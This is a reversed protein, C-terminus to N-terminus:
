SKEPQPAHGAFMQERVTHMWPLIQKVTDNTLYNQAVVFLVPM